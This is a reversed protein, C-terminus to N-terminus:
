FFHVRLHVSTPLRTLTRFAGKPDSSTGYGLSYREIRLALFDCLENNQSKSILTFNMIKLYKLAVNERM